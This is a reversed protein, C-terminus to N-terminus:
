DISKTMWPLWAPKERLFATVDFVPETVSAAREARLIRAHVARLGPYNERLSASRAAEDADGARIMVRLWEAGHGGYGRHDLGLRHVLAHGLEHGVVVDVPIRSDRLVRIREPNSRFEGAARPLDSPLDCM